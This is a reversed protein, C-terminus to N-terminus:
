QTLEELATAWTCESLRSYRAQLQPPFDSFLLHFCALLEGVVDNSSWGFTSHSEDKNPFVNFRAHAIMM